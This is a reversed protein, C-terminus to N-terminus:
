KLGLQKLKGALDKMEQDTEIKGDSQSSELTRASV